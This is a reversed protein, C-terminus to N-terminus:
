NPIRLVKFGAGGSDAAGVTVRELTANDVDYLFFRTDGATTSADFKGVDVYGAVANVSTQFILAGGATSGTGAYLTMNGGTGTTANMSGFKQNTGTAATLGMQVTAAAPRFFCTLPTDGVTFYMAGGTGNVILNLGTINGTAIFSNSASIPGTFTASQDAGLTLATTLVSPSANTATQFVMQTPLRGTSTDAVTGTANIAINGGEIFLNTAGVFGTAVVKGLTDGAAVALPVAFTGRSKRLHVRAGDTGTNSQWSMIGRPSSTGTDGVTFNTPVAVGGLAIAGTTFAATGPVTGGINMRNMAGVVTPTITITGSAGINVDGATPNITVGGAPIILADDPGSIQFGSEFTNAGGWVNTGEQFAMTGTVNPVTVVRTTATTFGDIEFRLLKTPDTSGKVIATADDFPAGGGAAAWTLVGSGNTQLFEGSTGDTTPLTLTYSAGTVGTKITTTFANAARRLVLSGDTTSATGLFLSNLTKDYALGVDGAPTNAGDFFLVHTDAGTITSGAGLQVWAGNIRGYVGSAAGGATRSHFSGDPPTTAPAGTGETWTAAGFTVTGDFLPDDLIRPM